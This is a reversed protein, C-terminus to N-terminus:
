IQKSTRTGSKTNKNTNTDRHAYLCLLGGTLGSIFGVKAFLGWWFDYRDYKEQPMYHTIGRTGLPYNPDTTITKPEGYILWIGMILFFSLVFIAILVYGKSFAIKLVKILEM